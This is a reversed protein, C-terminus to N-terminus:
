LIAQVDPWSPIAEEVEVYITMGCWRAHVGQSIIYIRIDRRTRLLFIPENPARGARCIIDASLSSIEDIDSRRSEWLINGQPIALIGDGRVCVSACVCVCRACGRARCCQNTPGSWRAPSGTGYLRAIGSGIRRPYERLILRYLWIHSSSAPSTYNGRSPSRPCLWLYSLDSQVLYDVIRSVNIFRPDLPNASHYRHM